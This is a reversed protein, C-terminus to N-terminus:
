RSPQRHDESLTGAVKRVSRADHRFDILKIPMKSFPSEIKKSVTVFQRGALIPQGDGILFDLFLLAANPHPANRAVGARDAARDAAPHVFWDIPAGKAKAQEAIFGYMTLALPVEGAVVLNNLLTHGKRVSIGNTAVIERFLKLGERRASIPSSRASGTSTRRRSGSSAKGSLSSCTAIPRRCFEGETGRCTNYAQVITNLYVSAWERHPPSSEPILDALQPSKVEQLLNERYLPEIGSSSGAMVDVENRRAKAEAHGAAPRRRFRRALGKGQRRIEKRVGRGLVSIDDVPISAYFTLDGEKKAGELLRQERDAGQYGALEM